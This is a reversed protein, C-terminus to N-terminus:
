NVFEELFVKIYSSLFRNTTFLYLLSNPLGEKSKAARTLEKVGNFCCDCPVKPSVVHGIVGSDCSSFIELRDIDIEGKRNLNEFKYRHRNFCAYSDDITSNGRFSNEDAAM